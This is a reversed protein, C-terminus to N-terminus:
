IEQIFLLLSVWQYYSHFVVGGPDGLSYPGIGYNEYLNDDLYNDAKPIIYTSHIYCYSNLMDRPIIKEYEYMALSCYMPEGMFVKGVSLFTMFFLMYTTFGYHLKFVPDDIVIGDYFLGKLHGFLSLLM